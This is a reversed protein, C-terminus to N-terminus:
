SNDDERNTELVVFAVATNNSHAHAVHITSIFREKALRDLPGTLDINWEKTIQVDKWLSGATLGCGLAKLLAEKIAFMTAYLEGEERHTCARERERPTFVQELFEEKRSLNRFRGVDVVDTGVGSIM